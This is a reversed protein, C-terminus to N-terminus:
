CNVAELAVRERKLNCSRRFNNVFSVGVAASWTNSSSVRILASESKVDGVILYANADTFLVSITGISIICMKSTNCCCQSFLM